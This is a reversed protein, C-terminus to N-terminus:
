NKKPPKPPAPAKTPDDLPDPAVIKKEFKDGKTKWWGFWRRVATEREDPTMSVMGFAAQDSNMPGYPIDVGTIEILERVIVASANRHAENERHDKGVLENLMFPIAVKGAEQLTTRARQFEKAPATPNVLSQIAAKIASVQGPTTGPIPPVEKPAEEVPGRKRTVIEEDKKREEVAEKFGRDKKARGVTTVMWQDALEYVGWAKPNEADAVKDFGDRLGVSVRILFATVGTENQVAYTYSGFDPGQSKDTPFAEGSNLKPVLYDRLHDCRDATMLLSAAEDRMSAQMEPPQNEYRRSDEWNYKYAAKAFHQKYDFLEDLKTRDRAALAKLFSKAHEEPRTSKPVEVRPVDPTRDAGASGSKPVPPVVPDIGKGKMSLLVIALLIGAIVFIVVARLATRSDGADRVQAIRADKQSKAGIRIGSGCRSCRFAGTFGAQVENKTRCKPCAVARTAAENM